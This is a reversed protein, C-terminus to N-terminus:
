PREIQQMLLFRLLHNFDSPSLAEAFNDPMLSTASERVERIDSRAIRQEQGGANVYVRQEGEDRRFLLNLVDGNQLSVVSYRFIRDVNRNPDLVDECLREVGRHGVGDLQPGVQGGQGGMSHCPMCHSQFLRAGAKADPASKRFDAQRHAVLELRRKADPDAANGQPLRDKFQPRVSLIREQVSRESLLSSSARGDAIAQLLADAGEASGCVAAAMPVAAGSAVERLVRLLMPIATASRFRIAAQALMARQDRTLSEQRLLAEVLPEAEPDAMELLARVSAVRMDASKETPGSRLRLAPAVERIGLRGSWEAAFLNQTPTSRSDGLIAQVRERGWQRMETGLALGRQAMGQEMAVFLEHQVGHDLSADSRFVRVLAELDAPAGHRASHRLQEMFGADSPRRRKLFELLFGASESTPIALCVDAVTEMSVDDRQSSGRFRQFSASDMLQDRLAKRVQYVLHTDNTPIVPRLTVLPAIHDFHPHRALGDAAARVVPASPDRLAAVLVAREADALVPREVLIRVAHLRLLAEPDRVSSMWELGKLLGRRDLIWLAGVRLSVPASRNSLAARLAVEMSADWDTRDCFHNLVALRQTFSPDALQQMQEVPALGRFDPRVRLQPRGSNDKRVVRWIRGSSRDRGPHSLPVEVHAIIRNYFDAIYLAGDPGFQVDVPRFWPDSSSVLDPLEHAIRTSGRDEIRDRNVRSTVVNGLLFNGQFEAPWLPEDCHNLGAIATSGHNHWLMQPAYGLGDHPKGFVPYFGGHIVQYIPMSHCDSTFLNGMPDFCLGFVNAQGDGVKEIRSGDGRFRFTSGRMELLHGDTGKVRTQNGVGQGGYFWGDFGRRFNNALNHTDTVGFPGYLVDRRDARGDGDTDQLSVVNPISFVVAGNRYPAVADPMSLGDAFVRNGRACGDTGFDSLIRIVDSPAKNTSTEIPYARTEAIWLRGSVDFSMSVPKGIEPEAAVLQMEFGEPVVFARLAEAPSRWPTSRVMEDFASATNDAAISAISLVACGGAVNLIRVLSRGIMWVWDFGSVVGRTPRVDPDTCAAPTM